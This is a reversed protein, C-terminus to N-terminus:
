AIGVVAMSDAQHALAHKDVPLRAPEGVHELIGLERREHAVLAHDRVRAISDNSQTLAGRRSGNSVASRAGAYARFRAGPRARAFAGASAASFESSIRFLLPSGQFFAIFM